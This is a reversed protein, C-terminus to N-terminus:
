LRTLRARLIDRKLRALQDAAEAAVLAEFSPASESLMQRKNEETSERTRIAGDLPTSTSTPAVQKAPTPDPHALSRIRDFERDHEVSLARARKGAEQRESTKLSLLFEKKPSYHDLLEAPIRRRYYYRTGRLVLYNNVASEELTQTADVPNKRLNL